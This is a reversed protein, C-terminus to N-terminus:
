RKINGKEQELTSVMQYIGTLGSYECSRRELVKAKNYTSLNDLFRQYYISSMGVYFQGEVAKLQENVDRFWETIQNERNQQYRHQSQGGKRHKNPVLSTDKFVVEIEGDTYVRAFCCESFDISLIQYIISKGETFRLLGKGCFYHKRKLKYPEV